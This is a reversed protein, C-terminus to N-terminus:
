GSEHDESYLEVEGALVLYATTEKDDVKFVCKGRTFHRVKM